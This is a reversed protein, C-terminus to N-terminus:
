EKHVKDKHSYHGSFSGSRVQVYDEPVQLILKDVMIEFDEGPCCRFRVMVALPDTAKGVVRLQTLYDKYFETFVVHTKMDRSIRHAEAMLRKNEGILAAAKSITEDGLPKNWRRLHRLAKASVQKIAPAVIEEFIERSMVVKNVDYNRKRRKVSHAFYQGHSIKRIMSSLGPNGRILSVARQFFDFQSSILLMNHEKLKSDELLLAQLAEALKQGEYKQFEEGLPHPEIRTIIVNVTRGTSEPNFAVDYFEM